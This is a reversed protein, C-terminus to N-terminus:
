TWSSIRFQDAFSRQYVETFQPCIDYLYTAGLIQFLGSDTPREELKADAIFKVQVAPSCRLYSRHQRFLLHSTALVATKSCRDVRRTSAGYCRPTRLAIDFLEPPCLPLAFFVSCLNVTCGFSTVPKWSSGLVLSRGYPGRTRAPRNCIRIICM